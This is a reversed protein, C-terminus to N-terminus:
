RWDGCFFAKVNAEPAGVVEYAEGGEPMVEAIEASDNNNKSSKGAPDGTNPLTGDDTPGVATEESGTDCVLVLEEDEESAESDDGTPINQLKQRKNSKQGPKPTESVRKVGTKPPMDGLGLQKRETVM